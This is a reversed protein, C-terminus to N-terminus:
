QWIFNVPVSVKNLITPHLLVGFGKYRDMEWLDSKLDYERKM